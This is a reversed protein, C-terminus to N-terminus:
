EELAFSLQDGIEIGIEDSLGGNVEFAYKVPYLSPLPTLAKPVANKHIHKITKHEDAYIVDLPIYTNKMWFSRHKTDPFVFLMGHNKPMASRYMLGIEQEDPTAAVEMAFHHTQNESIIELTKFDDQAKCSATFPLCALILIIILKKM